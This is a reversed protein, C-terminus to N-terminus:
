LGLYMGLVRQDVFLKSNFIAMSMTSKDMLFPSKGYFIAISTSKGM